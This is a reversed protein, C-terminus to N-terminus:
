LGESEPGRIPLLGRLPRLGQLARPQGPGQRGPARRDLLEAGLLPLVAVCVGCQSCVGHCRGVGRDGTVQVTKRALLTVARSSAAQAQAMSEDIPKPYHAMGCLFVGDTAFESPGLKAHAEVFFGDQNMPVKFLQALKRGPSARDRLGPGCTPGVEVPRGSIATWFEIRLKRGGRRPGQAETERSYQIFLIGESRAKRYFTSGSATRGSTGTSSSLHEHGPQAAEPPPREGHFPHLLGQLLLATGAGQVGRVPHVRRNQTKKLSPDGAMFRRDLELHTLVRPDQGYLYEEPKLEQAGTAIVAVGHEM